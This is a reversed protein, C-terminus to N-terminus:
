TGPEISRPEETAPEASERKGNEQPTSGSGSARVSSRELLHMYGMLLPIVLLSRYYRLPDDLGATLFTVAGVACVGIAVLLLQLAPYPAMRGRRRWLAFAVLNAVLCCGLGGWGRAEGKFLLVGGSLAMWLTSGLSAGLWAGLNWQM